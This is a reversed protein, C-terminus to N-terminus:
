GPGRTTKPEPGKPDTEPVVKTGPPYRYTETTKKGKKKTTKKKTTTTTTKTEATKTEGTTQKTTSEQRASAASTEVGGAGAARWEGSALPVMAGLGAVMTIRRAWTMSLRRKAARTARSVGGTFGSM